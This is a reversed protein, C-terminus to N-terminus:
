KKIKLVAKIRDYNPRHISYIMQRPLHAEYRWLEEEMVPWTVVAISAPLHRSIFFLFDSVALFLLTAEHVDRPGRGIESMDNAWAIMKNRLSSLIKPDVNVNV